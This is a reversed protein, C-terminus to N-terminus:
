RGGGLPGLDPAGEDRVRKLTPSRCQPSGALLGLLTATLLRTLAAALDLNWEPPLLEPEEAYADTVAGASQRDAM